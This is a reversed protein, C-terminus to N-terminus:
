LLRKGTEDFSEKSPCKSVFCLFQGSLDMSYLIFYLIRVFYNIIKKINFVPEVDFTLAMTDDYSKGFPM